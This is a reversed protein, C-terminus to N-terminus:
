KKIWTKFYGYVGDEEQVVSVLEYGREGWDNWEELQQFDFTPDSSLSLRVRLYNWKTEM